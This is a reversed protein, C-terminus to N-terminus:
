KSHTTWRKWLDNRVFLTMAVGARLGRPLPTHTAHLRSAVADEMEPMAFVLQLSTLGDPPSTWYGIKGFSRLYWPLPWYDTGIVAVPELSGEAAISKLQQLWPELTELDARTPVYAFPNREDSAFRGSTARAQNFQTILCTGVVALLTTKLWHPYHPFGAVAFGALLCVHAWPLCMLWPTKYRIISYILFHGAAAYALFRITARGEADRRFTSAFGLLALLAVPTGFWWVGGSKSPVMLLNIYYDAPKDHGGVTQYVFFTRVADIAGMPHRFADTYFFGSTLAATLASVAAPLRYERWSTLWWDRDLHKRNEFAIALAAAAWAIISIAFSEKTAFMLGILLGPIGWRAARTISIFALMAFLVLLSEHIYMRSYYVLLPSTALLAAALLMPGDGFRRRWLLPILILLAGATATLLRPTLKTMERWTPEGRLKCLPIALGSLIPGHYHVPDFHYDGSEIRLATIKAGTAEDAHFPRKALQDFRLFAGASVLAIWCSIIVVPKM